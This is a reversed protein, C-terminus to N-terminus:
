AGRRTLRGVRSTVPRLAEWVERINLLRALALYGVGFVLGSVALVALAGSRGGLVGGLALSAAWAAGASVGAAVGMRLYSRLVDGGGIRGIRRRIFWMGFLSSVVNSAVIGGAVIVVTLDPAFWLATLNILTASGTLVVQELLAMRGDEHAYFFRQNLVDVGFPVIGLAMAAIVHATPGVEEPRSVLLKAVPLALVLLAFSAPLTLATPGTLGRRYDRRLAAHDGAHAARSIRPYMATIVSLAVFSHPMTFVLLAYSYVAIGPIFRGLQDQQASSHTMVNSAVVYGVQSVVLAGFAWRALRSAAGLGVGRLGWRPTFRFGRRRLPILLFVAQAAIGLTASGAFWWVMSTTWSTVPANRPFMAMFALLGVIGVVNALAPSWGFAAFQGRANLVQGLLAYLGYFFIQPLTIFAFMTALGIADDDLRSVLRVLLPSAATSVLAVALIGSGAVTLIRDTFEKGGDPNGAARVLQPVLVSNLVGGAILMFIVNPLTNAATFAEGTLGQGIAAVILFQRVFGLLRSTITGGAMAMSSRAISSDQTTM